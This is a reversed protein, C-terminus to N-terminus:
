PLFSTTTNIEDALVTSNVTGFLCFKNAVASKKLFISLM